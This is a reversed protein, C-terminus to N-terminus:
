SQKLFANQQAKRFQAKNINGSQGELIVQKGLGPPHNAAICTEQSSSGETRCGWELLVLLHLSCTELRCKQAKNHRATIHFIFRYDENM